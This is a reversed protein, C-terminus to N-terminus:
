LKYGKEKRYQKPSVGNYKRFCVSFHSASQFGSRWAVDAISCSENILMQKAANMRVGILVDHPTIGRLNIFLRRLYSESVHCVYALEKISLDEQFHQEIYRQAQFVVDNEGANYGQHLRQQQHAMLLLEYLAASAAAQQYPNNSLFNSGIKRFLAEFEAYNNVFTMGAVGNLLQELEKNIKGVRIFYNRFPLRSSRTDGPKAILLLGQRISYEQENLISVGGNEYFLEIEYSEM